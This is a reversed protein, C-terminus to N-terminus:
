YSSCDQDPSRYFQQKYRWSNTTTWFVTQTPSNSASLESSITYSTGQTLGTVLFRVSEEPDGETYTKSYVLDMQMFKDTREYWSPLDTDNIYWCSGNHIWKICM